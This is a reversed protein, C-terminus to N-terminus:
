ATAGGVAQLQQVNTGNIGQPTNVLPGPVPLTLRVEGSALPPLVSPATAAAAPAAAPVQQLQPQQQPQPAQQPPMQQQQQQQPPQQRPPPAQTQPSQLPPERQQQPQQQMPPQMGGRPPEGGYREDYRDEYREDYREDYRERREELVHEDMRRPPPPGGERPGMGMGGPGGGGWEERPGPGMGGPVGGGPAAATAAAAALSRQVVAAFDPTGLTERVTIGRQRVEYGRIIAAIMRIAQLMFSCFSSCTHVTILEILGDCTNAEHCDPLCATRSGARCHSYTRSLEQAQRGLGGHGWM